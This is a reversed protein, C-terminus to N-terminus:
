GAKNCYHVKKLSSVMFYEYLTKHSDPKCVFVIQNPTPIKECGFLTKFNHNSASQSLREQQRLFSPDQMLFVSLGGMGASKLDYKTANSASRSDPLRSMLDCSYSQLDSFISSAGM